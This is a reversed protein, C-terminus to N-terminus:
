GKSINMKMKKTSTNMNEKTLGTYPSTEYGMLYGVSVRFFQAMKHMYQLGFMPPYRASCNYWWPVPRQNWSYSPIKRQNRNLSPSEPSCQNYVLVPLLNKAFIDSRIRSWSRGHAQRSQLLKRVQRRYPMIFIISTVTVSRVRSIPIRRAIPVYRELITTWNKISDPISQPTPPITKPIHPLM